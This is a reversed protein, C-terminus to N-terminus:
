SVPHRRCRADPRRRLSTAEFPGARPARRRQLEGESSLHLYSGDPGALRRAIRNYRAVFSKRREWVLFCARHVAADSFRWFPDSEAALFDPTVFADDDPRIADGCLACMARGARIREMDSFHAHPAGRAKEHGSGKLHALMNTSGM